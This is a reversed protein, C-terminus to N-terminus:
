AKDVSLVMRILVGTQYLLFELLKDDVADNHKAIRDNINKYSNILPQFLGVVGPDVGKEGLKKCIENKNTELNKTNGLYEQLFSELAKRLNDAVDRIYISESYQKLAIVYTKHTNPYAKLWELPESVLASDLEEAGKPFVFVGDQDRIIEYGINLKDLADKLYNLIDSKSVTHYGSLAARYINHVAIFKSILEATSRCRELSQRLLQYPRYHDYYAEGVMQCYNLHSMEDYGEGLCNDVYNQMMNSLMKYKGEDDFGIGLKERYDVWKM